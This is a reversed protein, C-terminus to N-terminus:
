ILRDPLTIGRLLEDVEMPRKGQRQATLIEVAGDGCAVTFGHLIEGPAGDGEVCRSHLLKLRAGDLECWAGPFPSLGRIKRDVEIAPTTWDIRAEAKDIKAAYTVGEEPQPTPTLSNLTSLAEVIANAGMTSLRDHLITTTDDDEIPTTRRLLVDGTDLGADMQMICVGTERDGAM